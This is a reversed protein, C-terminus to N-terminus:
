PWFDGDEDGAGGPGQSSLYFPEAADRADSAKLIRMQLRQIEREIEDSPLEERSKCRLLALQIVLEEYNNIGDFTDDANVLRPAVPIYYIRLTEVAMPTPVFVLNQGQLRYRYSKSLLGWTTYLHAAEIAHPYLRRWRTADMQIEVKRLKYHATPLPYTDVGATFQFTPSLVTYYDDYKGVILDYVEAIAENVFETLIADTIDASREYQGRLRVSTRLQALTRANAM